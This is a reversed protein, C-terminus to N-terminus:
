VKKEPKEPIKKDIEPFILGSYSCDLCVYVTASLGVAAKVNSPDIKINESSCKPCVKVHTV